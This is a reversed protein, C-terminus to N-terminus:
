SVSLSEDTKVRKDVIEETKERKQSKDEDEKETEKILDNLEDELISKRPPLDGRAVLAHRKDLHPLAINLAMDKELLLDVFEDMHIISWGEPTLLRLKRYDSYYPELESYIEKATGTLRLYFM